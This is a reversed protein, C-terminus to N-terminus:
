PIVVVPTITISKTDTVNAYVSTVSCTLTIPTESLASIDFHISTDSFGYDAALYNSVQYYLVDTFTGGTTKKVQVTNGDTDVASLEIRHYDLADAPTVGDADFLKFVVSYTNTVPTAESNWDVESSGTIEGVYAEAATEPWGPPWALFHTDSTDWTWRDPYSSPATQSTATAAKAVVAFGM